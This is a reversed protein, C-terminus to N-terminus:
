GGSSRKAIEVAAAEARDALALARVRELEELSMDAIADGELEDAVELLEGSGRSASVGTAKLWVEAYRVDRKEMAQEFVMDLITQVKDPSGANQLTLFRIAEVVRPDKSWKWVAQRSVGLVEQLEEQTKIERLAPPTAAWVVYARQRANLERRKVAAEQSTPRGPKGSVVGGGCFGGFRLLTFQPPPRGCCPPPSLGAVWGSVGSAFAFPSVTVCVVFLLAGSVLRPCFV